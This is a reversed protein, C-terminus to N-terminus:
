TKYSKYRKKTAKGAAVDEQQMCTIRRSSIASTVYVRPSGEERGAAYAYMTTQSPLRHLLRGAPTGGGPLRPPHRGAAHARITIQSYTLNQCYDPEQQRMMDQEQKRSSISRSGAGAEYTYYDPYEGGARRGCLCVRGYYDARARPYM